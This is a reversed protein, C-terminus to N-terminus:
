SHKPMRARGVPHMSTSWVPRIKVAGHGTMAPWPGSIALKPKGRGPDLVPATTEDMFLKGSRKLHEALRDVVPKLDSRQRASGIRWCPVTCILAQARWSRAKATYHCTTLTNASWCM